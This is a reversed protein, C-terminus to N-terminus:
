PSGLGYAIATGRVELGLTPINDRVPFDTIRPLVVSKRTRLNPSTDRVPLGHYPRALAVSRARTRQPDM